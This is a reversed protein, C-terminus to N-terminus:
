DEVENGSRDKCLELSQFDQRVGTQTRGLAEKCTSRLSETTDDLAVFLLRDTIGRVRFAQIVAEKVDCQRLLNELGLDLPPASEVQQPTFGLEGPSPVSFSRQQGFQVSTVIPQGPVPQATKQSQPSSAAYMPAAPKYSATQPQVAYAPAAPTVQSSAATFTPLEPQQPNSGEPLSAAVAAEYDAEEQAYTSEDYIQDDAGSMIFTAFNFSSVTRGSLPHLSRKLGFAVHIYNSNPPVVLVHAVPAPIEVVEGKPHLPSVSPGKLGHSMSPM